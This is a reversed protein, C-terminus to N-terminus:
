WHIWLTIIVTESAKENNWVPAHSCCM